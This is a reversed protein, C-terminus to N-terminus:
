AIVQPREHGRWSRFETRSEAEIENVDRTEIEIELGQGLGKSLGAYKQFSIKFVNIISLQLVSVESYDPLEM